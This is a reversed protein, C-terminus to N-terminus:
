SKRKMVFGYHYVGYLPESLVKTKVIEYNELIYTNLKSEGQLPLETGSFTVVLLPNSKELQSISELQYDLKEEDFLFPDYIYNTGLKRQTFWYIEADFAPVYIYDESTTNEKVYESIEFLDEFDNQFYFQGFYIGPGVVSLVLVIALMTKIVPRLEISSVKISEKKEFLSHAMLGFFLVYGPLLPTFHACCGLIPLLTPIAAIFWLILFIMKDKNIGLKKRAFLIIALVPMSFFFSAIAIFDLRFRFSFLSSHTLNYIIGQYVFDFFAGHYLLYLLFLLPFAAYSIALTAIEKRSPRLKLLIFVFAFISLFLMTQKLLVLGSLFFGTLVLDRTKRKDMFSFLFYALLIAFLTIFPEILVNWTLTFVSWSAYLFTAILTTKESMLKRSLAYFAFFTVISVAIMFLRSTFFEMPVFAYFAALIFYIGPAYMSFFESYLDVGQLLLWGGTTTIGEDPNPRAYILSLTILAFFICILAFALKTKRSSFLTGQEQFQDM